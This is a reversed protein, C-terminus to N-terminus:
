AKAEWSALLARDAKPGAGRSIRNGPTVPELSSSVGTTEELRM